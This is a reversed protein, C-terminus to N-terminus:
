LKMLSLPREADVVKGVGPSREGASCMAFYQKQLPFQFSRAERWIAELQELVALRGHRLFFDSAVAGVAEAKAAVKPRM